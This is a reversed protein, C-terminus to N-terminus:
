FTNTTYSFNLNLWADQIKDPIRIFVQTGSILLIWIAYRSCGEFVLTLRPASLINLPLPFTINVKVLKWANRNKFVLVSVKDM